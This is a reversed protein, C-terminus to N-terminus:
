TRQPERSEREIDRERAGKSGRRARDSESERELVRVSENAKELEPVNAEHGESVGKIEREMRVGGQPERGIAFVCFSVLVPLPTAKEISPVSIADPPFSPTSLIQSAARTFNSKREVEIEIGWTGMVERESDVRVHKLRTDEERERGRERAREYM